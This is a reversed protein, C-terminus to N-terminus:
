LKYVGTHALLVDRFEVCHGPRAAGGHACRGARVACGCVHGPLDQAGHGRLGGDDDHGPGVVAGASYLQLRQASQAPHAGCLLGPQCLHHHRAGPLLGLADTRQLLRPLNPPPDQPRPLPPDAQVAPPHPHHLLVRPRRCEGPPLGNSCAGPRHLFQFPASCQPSYKEQKAVVNQHFLSSMKASYYRCKSPIIVVNQLFLSSMTVTYHRCKSPIIVDNQRFLSPM